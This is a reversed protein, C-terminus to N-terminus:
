DQRLPELVSKLLRLMSCLYYQIVTNLIYKIHNMGDFYNLDCLFQVFRQAYRLIALVLSQSQRENM